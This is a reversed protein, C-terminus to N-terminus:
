RVAMIGVVLLAAECAVLLRVVRVSMLGGLTPPTHRVAGFRRRSM